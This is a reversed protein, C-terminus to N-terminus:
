NFHELTEHAHKLREFDPALRQVPLDVWLRSNSPNRSRLVVWSVRDGAPGISLGSLSSLENTSACPPPGSNKAVGSSPGNEPTQADSAWVVLLLPVFLRIQKM